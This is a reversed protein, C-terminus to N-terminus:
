QKTLVIEWLEKLSFLYEEKKNGFSSANGSKPCM